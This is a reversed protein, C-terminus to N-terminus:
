SPHPSTVVPAATHSVGGRKNKSVRTPKYPKHGALVTHLKATDCRLM